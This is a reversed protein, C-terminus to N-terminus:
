LSPWAIGAAVSIWGLASPSIAKTSFFSRIPGPMLAASTSAAVSPTIAQKSITSERMLSQFILIWSVTASLALQPTKTSPSRSTSGRPSSRVVQPMTSSFFPSITAVPAPAAASPAGALATAQSALVSPRSPMGSFAPSTTSDPESAIM